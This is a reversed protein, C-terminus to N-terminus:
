YCDVHLAIKKVRDDRSPHINILSVELKDFITVKEPYKPYMISHIEMFTNYATYSPKKIEYSNRLIEAAFLDSDFEDDHISERLM